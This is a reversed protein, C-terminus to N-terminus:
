EEVFVVNQAQTGRDTNIVDFTVEANDEEHIDEQEEPLATSHVFYDKSDEGTIFGYGKTKVFWKIKGKM